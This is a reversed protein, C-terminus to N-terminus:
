HKARITAGNIQAAPKASGRVIPPGSALRGLGTGNVVALNAAPSTTAVQRISQQGRPNATGTTTARGANVDSTNVGATGTAPSPGLPSGQRLQATPEPSLAAGIANRAANSNPPPVNTPKAITKIPTSKDPAKLPGLPRKAPEPISTDIPANGMDEGKKGDAAAKAKLETDGKSTKSENNGELSSKGHVGNQDIGREKAPSAADTTDSPKPTHDPHSRIPGNGADQGKPSLENSEHGTAGKGKTQVTSQSSGGQDGKPSGSQLGKLNAGEARDKAWIVQMPLACILVVALLYPRPNLATKM